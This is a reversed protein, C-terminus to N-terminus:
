VHEDDKKELYIQAWLKPDVEEVEAQLWVLVDRKGMKYYATSGSHDFTTGESNTFEKLRRVLRRFSLSECLAKLDSLERLRKREDRNGKAKVQKESSANDM